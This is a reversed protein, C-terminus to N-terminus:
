RANRLFVIMGVVFGALVGFAVGEGSFAGFASMPDADASGSTVRNVCGAFSSVLWAPVFVLMGAVVGKAAASRNIAAVRKAEANAAAQRDEREREARRAREEAAREEAERKVKAAAAADDAERQVKEKAVTIDAPAVELGRASAADAKDACARAEQLEVLDRSEINELARELNASAESLFGVSAPVYTGSLEDAIASAEATLEKLEDLRIETAAVATRASDREAELLDDLLAVVPGRIAIFASESWALRHLEPRLGIASRLLRLAEDAAGNQAHYLAAEYLYDPDTPALVIAQESRECATPFDDRCASVRALLYMSYAKMDRTADKPAHPLSALLMKEARDLDGSRLCTHALGVYSRYDLPNTDVARSFFDTAQDLVGRERLEEAMERWENAQTQSPTKLTHDIDRLLDTQQELRWTIDTAAWRLMQAVGVFGREVTSSLDDIKETLTWLGDSSLSELSDLRQSLGTQSDSIVRGVRDVAEITSCHHCRYTYDSVESGCTWCRAM